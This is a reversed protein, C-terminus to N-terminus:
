EITITINEGRDAAAKIKAFVRTYTARSNLLKGVAKNEGLLICGLTDAATNGSHIRVGEWCPVDLLRCMLQRFKVSFDVVIKYIGTPIATKGYVKARQIKDVPDTNKLGRDTDELTDCVYANDIYLKGITYTTKKTIRILKIKM